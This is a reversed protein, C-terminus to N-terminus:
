TQKITHTYNWIKLSNCILKISCAAVERTVCILKHHLFCSSLPWLFINFVYSAQVVVSTYVHISNTDIQSEHCYTHKGLHFQARRECNMNLMYQHNGNFVICFNERSIYLSFATDCKDWCCYLQTTSSVFRYSITASYTTRVIIIFVVTCRDDVHGFVHQKRSYNWEVLWWWM